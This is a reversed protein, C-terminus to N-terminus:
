LTERSKRCKASRLSDGFTLDVAITAFVLSELLFGPGDTRNEQLWSRDLGDEVM